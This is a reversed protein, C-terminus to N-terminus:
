SRVVDYRTARGAGKKRLLGLEVLKKIHNKATRNPVALAREYEATTITGKTVIWDWGARESDTMQGLAESGVDATAAKTDRYLTLSVYPAKYSYSPLPLEAQQARSKMSELGLGREEALDMKAFVFHM